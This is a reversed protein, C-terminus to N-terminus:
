TLYTEKYFLTYRFQAFTQRQSVCACNYTTSKTPLLTAGINKSQIGQHYKVTLAFKKGM